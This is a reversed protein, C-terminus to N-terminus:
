SPSDEASIRSVWLEEENRELSKSLFLPARFRYGTGKFGPAMFRSRM